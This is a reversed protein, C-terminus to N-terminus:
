LDAEESELPIFLWLLMYVLLGPFAASVVSLAVYGVRLVTPDIEFHRAFGGLVGGLKRDHRSRRLEFQNPRAPLDSVQIRQCIHLGTHPLPPLRM